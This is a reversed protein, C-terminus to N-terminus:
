HNKSTFEGMGNNIRKLKTLVDSGIKDVEKINNMTEKSFPEEDVVVMHPTIYVGIVAIVAAIIIYTGIYMLAEM